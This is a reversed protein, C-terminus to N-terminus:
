TLFCSKRSCRFQTAGLDYAAHIMDWENGQTSALGDLGRYSHSPWTVLLVTLLWSFVERQTFLILFSAGIMVDPAVMLINNIFSLSRPIEEIPLHLYCWFDWYHDCDLSIFLGLFLDSDCNLMLRGDNFMTKFHSLSFGTFSNM